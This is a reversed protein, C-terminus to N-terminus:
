DGTSFAPPKAKPPRPLGIGVGPDTGSEGEAGFVGENGAPLPSLQGQLAKRLQHAAPQPIWCRDSPNRLTLCLRPM